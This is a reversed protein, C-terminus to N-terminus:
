SQLVVLIAGSRKALENLQGLDLKVFRNFWLTFFFERELPIKLNLELDAPPCPRSPNLRCLLFQASPQLSAHQEIAKRFFTLAHHLEGNKHELRGFDIGELARPQDKDVLNMDTM